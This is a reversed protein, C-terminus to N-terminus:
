VLKYLLSSDLLYVDPLRTGALAVFLAAINLCSLIICSPRSSLGAGNWGKRIATKGKKLNELAEAFNM